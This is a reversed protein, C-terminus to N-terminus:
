DGIMLHHKLDEYMEYAEDYSIDSILTVNCGTIAPEKYKLDLKGDKNLVFKIERATM